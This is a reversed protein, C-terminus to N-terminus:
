PRHPRLQITGLHALMPMPPAASALVLQQLVGETLGLLALKQAATVTAQIKADRDLHLAHHLTMATACLRGGHMSMTQRKAATPPAVASRHLIASHFSLSTTGAVIAETESLLRAAGRRLAAEPGKVLTMGSALPTLIPLM